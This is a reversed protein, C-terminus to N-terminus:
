WRAYCSAIGDGERLKKFEENTHFGGYQNYPNGFHVAVNAEACPGDSTFYLYLDIDYKKLAEYLDLVLDRKSCAWGAPLGCIRDYTANPAIMYPMGQCMSIMFYGAHMEHLQRALKEVDFAEVHESWPKVNAGENSFHFPNNQIGELYHCMVGWRKQYM